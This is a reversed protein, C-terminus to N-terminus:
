EEIEKATRVYLVRLEKAFQSAKSIEIKVDQGRRLKCIRKADEETYKGADLLNTTYGESNERWFLAFDNNYNSKNWIYYYKMSKFRHGGSGSLGLAAVLIVSSSDGNGNKHSLKTSNKVRGIGNGFSM